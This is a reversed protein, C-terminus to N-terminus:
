SSGAFAGILISLALVTLAPLTRSLPDKVKLHMAVAGVMLADLCRDAGASASGAWGKTCRTAATRLSRGWPPLRRASISGRARM